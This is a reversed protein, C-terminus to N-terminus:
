SPLPPWNWRLRNEGEEIVHRIPVDPFGYEALIACYREACDDVVKRARAVSEAYSFVEAIDKPYAESIRQEERLAALVPEGAELIAKLAAEDVPKPEDPL